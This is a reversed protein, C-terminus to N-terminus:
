GRPDEEKAVGVIKGDKLFYTRGCNENTEVVIKKMPISFFKPAVIEMRLESM